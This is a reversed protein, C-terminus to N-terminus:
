GCTHHIQIYLWGVRRVSAYSIIFHSSSCVSPWECHGFQLVLPVYLGLNGPEKKLLQETWCSFWKGWLVVTKVFVSTPSALLKAKDPARSFCIKESILLTNKKVISWSLACIRTKYYNKNYEKVHKSCQQAWWWSTLITNYLMQYWWVRYTATRHVPYWIHIICNQGGSSSCLLARFM